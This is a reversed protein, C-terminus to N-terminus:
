GARRSVWGNFLWLRLPKLGACDIIRAGLGAVVPEWQPGLRGTGLSPLGLALGLLHPDRCMKEKNMRFGGDRVGKQHGWQSQKRSMQLRARGVVAVRGDVGSRVTQSVRARERSPEKRDGEFAKETVATTKLTAAAKTIWNSTLGATSRREM